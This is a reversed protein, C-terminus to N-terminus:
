VAVQLKCTVVFHIETVIAQGGDVQVVQNSWVPVVEECSVYGATLAYEGRYCPRCGIANEINLPASIETTPSPHSQVELDTQV